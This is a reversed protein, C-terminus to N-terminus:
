TISQCVYISLKGCIKIETVIKHFITISNLYQYDNPGSSQVISCLRCSYTFEAM